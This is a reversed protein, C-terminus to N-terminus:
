QISASTMHGQVYEVLKCQTHQSQIGAKALANVPKCSNDRVGEVEVGKRRALECGKM